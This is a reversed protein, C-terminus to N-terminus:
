QRVEVTGSARAIGSVTQGSATRVQALQGERANNLAKGEATVRFGQGASKLIVTQGQQVVIPDHLSAKSLPQGAALASAVNKGVAQASESLVGQPLQTLDGSQVAVDPDTLTHGQPVARALVVYNGIVTVHVTVFISWPADSNCRAGVATQGWLRAGTPLFYEIAPCASLSVRTDVPTIAVSTKNPSGATQIRLFNEIGRLIAGHDQRPAVQASAWQTACLALAAITCAFQEHRIKLTM